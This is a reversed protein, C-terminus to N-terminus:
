VGPEFRGDQRNPNRSVPSYPSGVQPTDPQSRPGPLSRGPVLRSNGQFNIIPKQAVAASIPNTALFRTFQTPGLRDRYTFNIFSLFLRFILQLTFSSFPLPTLAVPMYLVM